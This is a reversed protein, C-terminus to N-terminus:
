KISGKEVLESFNDFMEEFKANYITKLGLLFNSIDDTSMNKELVNKNLLDIEETINWCKMIHQELDFRDTM